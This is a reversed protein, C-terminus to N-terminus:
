GKMVREKTNWLELFYKDVIRYPTYLTFLLLLLLLYFLICSHLDDM